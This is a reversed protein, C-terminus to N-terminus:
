PYIGARELESFIFEMGERIKDTDKRIVVDISSSMNLVFTYVNCDREGDVKFIFFGKNKIAVMELIQLFEELGVSSMSSSGFHAAYKDALEGFSM